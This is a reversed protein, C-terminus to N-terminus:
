LYLYGDIYLCPRDISTEFSRKRNFEIGFYEKKQKFEWITKGNENVLSYNCFVVDYNKEKAKICNKVKILIIVM